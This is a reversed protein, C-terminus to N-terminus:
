QEEQPAMEDTEAMEPDVGLRSLNVAANHDQKILRGCGECIYTEQETSLNLYDCYQCTRTTNMANRTEVLIGNKDAADKLFRLFKGPAVLQRYKQSRKLSVPAENDHEQAVKAIFSSEVVLRNIGKASLHRCVDLAVHMQGYEIRATLNKSYYASLRDLASGKTFWDNVIRQVQADEAFEERVRQLGRSGAADLWAPTEEGLHKKLLIKAHDKWYDRRMQLASRIGLANPITDGPKWEPFLAAVQRILPIAKRLREEEGPKGRLFILSFSRREKRTMGLNISFPIRDKHDLPSQDLNVVLERTTWGGPEYLTGFRVGDETRRWGIDLGAAIQGPVLLPRQVELVLCLFAVGDQFILQWEKVHSDKPLPRQQVVSFRFNWRANNDGPISITADRLVKGGSYNSLLPHGTHAPDLPPGFTLGPVGESTELLESHVGAKNFYYYLGWDGARPSDNYKIKPWGDSWEEKGTKRRALAARFATMVPRIEFRRLKLEVAEKEAIQTFHAIFEKLPTYDSKYQKAFAAIEDALGEPVPRGKKERAGLDRVFSWLGEVAPEEVKLIAPHRIKQKSVGLTENFVDIKHLVTEEVFKKVDETAVPSCRRRADRCLWALRNWYSKQRAVSGMLWEPLKENTTAGQHSFYARYKYIVNIWGEEAPFRRPTKSMGGIRLLSPQKEDAKLEGARTQPRMSGDPAMLQFKLEKGPTLELNEPVMVAGLSGFAVTRTAADFVISGHTFSKTTKLSSEGAQVFICDGDYTLQKIM